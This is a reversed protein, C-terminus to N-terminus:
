SSRERQADSQAYFVARIIAGVVVSGQAARGLAGCESCTVCLISVVRAYRYPTHMSVRFSSHYEHIHIYVHTHAHICKGKWGKTVQGIVLQSDMCCEVHTVNYMAAMKLANILSVYEATNNTEIGLFEICECVLTPSSSSSPSLIYLASGSGALGVHM